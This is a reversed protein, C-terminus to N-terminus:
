SDLELLYHAHTGCARGLAQAADRTLVTRVALTTGLTRCRNIGMPVRCASISAVRVVRQGSIRVPHNPVLKRPVGYLPVTTPMQVACTSLWSASQLQVSTTANSRSRGYESGTTAPM